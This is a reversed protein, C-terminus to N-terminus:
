APTEDGGGAAAFLRRTLESNDAHILDKNLAETVVASVHADLEKRLHGQFENHIVAWITRGDSTWLSTIWSRDDYAGPDNNGRGRYVIVCRHQLHVLDPGVNM